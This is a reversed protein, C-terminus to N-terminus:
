EVSTLVDSLIANSVLFGTETLFWTDNKNQVLGHAIYKKLAKEIPKFSKNFKQEYEFSNIGRSTRLSLM